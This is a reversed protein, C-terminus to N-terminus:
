SILKRNVTVTIKKKLDEIYSKLAKDKKDSLMAQLVMKEAQENGQTEPLNVDLGTVDVSSEILRRMKALVLERRKLNEFIEPTMRSLKLRHLYMDRDFTGNKMFAPDGAISDELEKDSITIGNEAAAMLLIRESIMSNLVSEKLNLKKETEEDFKDKYIERYFRYIRDYTQWYDDATIKYKGVEAVVQVGGTKDVTGVGWFIFSLIVIFFLVYFYKAHQRMMRLM